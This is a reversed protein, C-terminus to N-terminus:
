RNVEVMAFFTDVEFRTYLIIEVRNDFIEVMVRAGEELYDRHM